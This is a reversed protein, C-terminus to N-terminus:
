KILGHKKLSRHSYSGPNFTEFTTVKKIHEPKVKDPHVDILKSRDQDGGTEFMKNFGDQNLSKNHALDFVAGSKLFGFPVEGEESFLMHNLETDLKVKELIGHRVTHPDTRLIRKLHEPGFHPSSAALQYKGINILGDVDEKTHEMKSVDDTHITTVGFVNKRNKAIENRLNSVDYSPNVVIGSHYGNDLGSDLIQNIHEPSGFKELFYKQHKKM